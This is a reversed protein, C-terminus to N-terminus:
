VDRDLSRIAELVKEESKRLEESYQARDGLAVNELWWPAINEEFRSLMTAEKWLQEKIGKRPTKMGHVELKGLYADYLADPWDGENGVCDNVFEDLEPFFGSFEFDVIGTIKTPNVSILVNRPSLDYHTFLFTSETKCIELQPLGSAIFKRISPILYRNAEFIDLGQLKEVRTELKLRYYQLLDMIPEVVTIGFGPMKSSSAVRLGAVDLFNLGQPKAHPIVCELNGASMWAPLAERWRFVIDALQEGVAILKDTGLSLTSLPIGAVRTMIIWGLQKKNAESDLRFERRTPIGEPTVRHVLFTTDSWAIVKPCPIEPAFTDLLSLCSVENESKSQDFFQGNLKLVLNNVTGKNLGYVLTSDPVDVQLFYIRNNFSKGHELPDISLLNCGPILCEIISTIAENSLSVGYTPHFKPTVGPSAITTEM